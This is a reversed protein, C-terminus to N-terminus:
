LKDEKLVSVIRELDKSEVGLNLSLRCRATNQPVTPPRIAPIYFGNKHFKKSLDLANQNSKVIIPIIQSQSGGFDIDIEKLKCRFDDANELLTKGLNDNKSLFEIAAINWSLVSQPLATSFILPRCKNVLYDKLTKGCQLYAGMGAAAKSLTGMVLLNESHINDCLGRGFNGFVGASHAEDILLFAGYKQATEVLKKIDACDGDMSFLSDSIILKEGAECSKILEELHAYDRHNFRFHKANSLRIGDIISAHNLRDSFIASKETTIAQIIGLNATFGSNFLLINECNKWKCITEELQLFLPTNQMVLRSALAGFFKNGCLEQARENIQPNKHLNLYSNSSLDILDSRIEPFFRMQSNKSLTELEKEFRNQAPPKM